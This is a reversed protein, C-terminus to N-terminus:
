LEIEDQVFQLVEAHGWLDVHVGARDSASGGLRLV